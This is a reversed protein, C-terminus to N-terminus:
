KEFNKFNEIKCGMKRLFVINEAYIFPVAQFLVHWQRLLVCVARRLILNPGSVCPNIVGVCKIRLLQYKSPFYVWM